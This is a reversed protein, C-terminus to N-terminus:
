SLEDVLRRILPEIQEDCLCTPRIVLVGDSLQGHGVYVPPRGARLRRCVEFATRGLQRENVALELVAPSQGDNPDILRCQVQTATLAAVIKELGRRSTAVESDFAGAAFLELAKLLAAIEEKSVKLSRGIGHRPMGALKSRDILTRPPDWLEPHDDMDLMQLAASAILDRSGCLIGTSQPGRIAKGGSFAVLDAGTAVIRTLNERPPLEGAADVLVPLGRRHACEVVQELPPRSGPAYGYLVGATGPGFAAAYEWAETRRVGAHATIENFGVEILRAGAARVAHDYGNRHERAVVFEHPFGDCCPLREMRGVDWGALIAATGLTLSAAAGSTVLGAEAGTAAAIRASAAAQMQELPVTQAAAAVFADLVAPPMPAGGLRTVTGSANIIPELGLERFTSM